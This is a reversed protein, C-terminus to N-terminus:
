LKETYTGDAEIVFYYDGDKKDALAQFQADNLVGRDHSIPKANNLIQINHLMTAITPVLKIDTLKKSDGKVVYFTGAKTDTDDFVKNIVFALDAQKLNVIDLENQVIRAIAQALATKTALHSADFPKPKEAEHVM